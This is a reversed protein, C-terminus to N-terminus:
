KENKILKEEFSIGHKKANEDISFLFKEDAIKKILENKLITDNLQNVANFAKATLIAKFNTKYAISKKAQDRSIVSYASDLNGANYYVASMNYLADPFFPAIRLAERYHECAKETNGELNYGTGVDNITQLHYPNIKESEKFYRFAAQQNGSYFEAFGKYWVLPTGTYDLPFIKKDTHALLQKMKSFDKKRQAMMAKTLYVESKLRKYGIFFGSACFIISFFFFLLVYNKFSNKKTTSTKLRAELIFAGMMMFLLVPFYRNNPLSFFAIIFYGSVGALMLLTSIKQSPLATSKFIQTGYYFLCIFVSLYLFLGLIGKEATIFLFDNHPRIFKITGTNMYPAEGMGYKPFYIQWNSVGSGFLPHEHIMRLSNRWLIYREYTSNNNIISYNELSAPNTIYHKATKIRLELLKFNETRLYFVATISLFILVTALMAVIFKKNIGVMHERLFTKRYLFVSLLVVLGATILALWTSLTQLIILTCLIIICNLLGILKWGKKFFISAYLAFPLCLFITEAYFNKNALGSSISYNVLVPTGNHLYKLVLPYLQKLGMATFLLVCINVSKVLTEKSREDWMMFFICCTFFLFFLFSKLVEFMGDTKNLSLILGLGSILVFLGMVKFLMSVPISSYFDITIKQLKFFFFLSSFLLIVSLLIFRLSQEVDQLDNSYTFPMIVFLATYFIIFFKNKNNSFFNM